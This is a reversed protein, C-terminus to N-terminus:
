GSPPRRRPCTCSRNFALVRAPGPGRKSRACAWVKKKTHTHTRARCAGRPRTASRRDYTRRGEFPLFSFGQLMFYKQFMHAVVCVCADGGTARRATPGTATSPPPAARARARACDCAENGWCAISICGNPEPRSSFSCHTSSASVVRIWTASGSGCESGRASVYRDGSGGAVSELGGCVGPVPPRGNCDVHVRCRATVASRLTPTTNIRSAPHAVATTAMTDTEM